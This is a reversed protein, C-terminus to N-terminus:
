SKLVSQLVKIKDLEGRVKGKYYEEAQQYEKLMENHFYLKLKISKM